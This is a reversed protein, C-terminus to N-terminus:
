KDEGAPIEVGAIATVTKEPIFICSETLSVRFRKFDLLEYFQRQNELLFDGYGASFRMPTLVRGKRRLESGVFRNLWEIGAEATESGVADYILASSGDGNKLAEQALEAIGGGATVGMFLASVSRLLLKAISASDFTIGGSFTVSTEGRGIIDLIIWSGRTECAAFGRNMVSGFKRRVEDDLETKHINYKLRSLIEKEPLTVPIHNVINLKNM